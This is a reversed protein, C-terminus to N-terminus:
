KGSLSLWLPQSGNGVTTSEPKGRSWDWVQIEEGSGQGPIVSLLFADVTPHWEFWRTSKGPIAVPACESLSQTDLVYVAASTAKEMALYRGSASWALPRWDGSCAGLKGQKDWIQLGGERLRAAVRSGGARTEPLVGTLDAQGELLTTSRGTSLHLVSVQTGGQIFAVSDPGAWKLGPFGQPGQSYTVPRLEDLLIAVLEWNESPRRTTVFWRGSPSLTATTTGEGLVVDEGSGPRYLHWVPKGSDLSRAIYLLDHTGHRWEFWTIGPVRLLQTDDSARLVRLSSDASVALFSGDSTSKFREGPSISTLNAGLRIFPSGGSTDAFGLEGLWAARATAETIQSRDPSDSSNGDDPLPRSQTASAGRCGSLAILCGIVMLFAVFRVIAPKSTRQGNYM